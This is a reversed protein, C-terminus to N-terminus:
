LFTEEERDGRRDWVGRGGMGRVRQRDRRVWEDDDPDGKSETPTETGRGEEGQRETSIGREGKRKTNGGRETERHTERQRERM